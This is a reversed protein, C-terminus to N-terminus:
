QFIYNGIKIHTNFESNDRVIVLDNKEFVSCTGWVMVACKDYGKRTFHRMWQRPDPWFRNLVNLGDLSFKKEGTVIAYSWRQSTGSFCKDAWFLHRILVIHEMVKQMNTTTQSGPDRKHCVKLFTFWILMQHRKWLLDLQFWPITDLTKWEKISM